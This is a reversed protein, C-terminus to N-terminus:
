FEYSLIRGMRRIPGLRAARAHLAVRRPGLYPSAVRLMTDAQIDDILRMGLAELAAPDDIGWRLRAGAESSELRGVLM